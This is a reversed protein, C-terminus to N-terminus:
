TSSQTRSKLISSSRTTLSSPEEEERKSAVSRFKEKTCQVIPPNKIELKELRTEKKRNSTEVDEKHTNTNGNGFISQLSDGRGISSRKARGMATVAAVTHLTSGSDVGSINAHLSDSTGHPVCCDDSDEDVILKRTNIKDNKSKPNSVKGSAMSNNQIRSIQDDLERINGEFLEKDIKFLNENVAERKAILEIIDRALSLDKRIHHMKRFDELHNRRQHKRLRYPENVCSRFVHLRNSDGSHTQPWFQRCLSKRINCRKETWYDYIRPIIINLIATPPNLKNKVKELSMNLTILSTSFATATEFINIVSEFFSPTLWNLHACKTHQICSQIWNLDSDDIIYDYTPDHKSRISKTYHIYNAPQVFDAPIAKDYELDVTVDCIPISSIKKVRIVGAANIAKSNKAEKEDVVRILPIQRHVDIPMSFGDKVMSESSVM